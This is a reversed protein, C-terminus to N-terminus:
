TVYTLNGGWREGSRLLQLIWHRHIPDTTMLGVMFISSPLISSPSTARSPDNSIKLQCQLVASISRDLNFSPLPLASHLASLVINYGFAVSSLVEEEAVFASTSIDIKQSMQENWQHIEHEIDDYLGKVEKTRIPADTVFESEMQTHLKADLEAVRMRLIDARLLNFLAGRSALATFDRAFLSSFAPMEQLLQVLQGRGIRHYTARADLIALRLIIRRTLSPKADLTFEDRKISVIDAAAAILNLFTDVSGAVMHVTKVRVFLASLLGDVELVEAHRFTAFSEGAMDVFAKAQDAYSDDEMALHSASFALIAHFLPPFYLSKTFASIFLNNDDKSHDDVKAYGKMVDLYHQILRRNNPNVSTHSGHLDVVDGGNIPARSSSAAEGPLPSSPAPWDSFPTSMNWDQLAAADVAPLPVFDLGEGASNLDFAGSVSGFDSDFFFGSFLDELAEEGSPLRGPPAPPALGSAPTLTRAASSEEQVDQQEAMLQAQADDDGNESTGRRRRAIARRRKPPPLYEEGAAPARWRCQFGLRRCNACQSEPYNNDNAAAAEGPRRECRVKRTKCTYCGARSRKRPTAPSAEAM